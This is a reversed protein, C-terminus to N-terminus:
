GLLVSDLQKPRLKLNKLAKKGWLYHITINLLILTIALTM